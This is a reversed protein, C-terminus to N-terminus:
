ERSLKPPASPSMHTSVTFCHRVLNFMRIDNLNGDSTICQVEFQAPLNNLKM